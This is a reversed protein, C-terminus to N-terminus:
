EKPCINHLTLFNLIEEPLDIVANKTTNQFNKESNFYSVFKFCKRSPKNGEGNKLNMFNKEIQELQTFPGKGLGIIIISLPLNSSQIIENVFDDKDDLDGGVIDILLNYENLEDEYGEIDEKIKSNINKLTFSLNLNKAPEIQKLFSNYTKQIDSLEISPNNTKLNIPFMNENFIGKNKPENIFSFGQGYVHYFSDDAYPNLVSLCSKLMSDYYSTGNATSYHLSSPTDYKGSKESFDLAFITYIHFNGNLYDLLSYFNKTFCNLIAKNEGSINLEKKEQILQYINGNFKAIPKNHLVDKINVEVMNTDLNEDPALESLPINSKLFIVKNSNELEESEYLLKNVPDFQSGLYTVDYKIKMGTLKGEVEVNFEIEKDLEDQLCAEVEFILGSSFNRRYKQESGGIITGLCVEVKVNINSQNSIFFELPQEHSFHFDIDKIPPFRIMNTEKDRTLSETKGITKIKSKRSNQYEKLEVDFNSDSQIGKLTINLLIKLGDESFNDVDKAINEEKPKFKEKENSKGKEKNKEKKDNKVEKIEKNVNNDNNVKNDNGNENINNINNENEENNNNEENRYHVKPGTNKKHSGCGTKNGM